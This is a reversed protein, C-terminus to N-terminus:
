TAWTNKNHLSGPSRDLYEELHICPETDDPGDSEVPALSRIRYQYENFLMGKPMTAQFGPTGTKFVLSAFDKSDQDSECHVGDREDILRERSVTWAMVLSEAGADLLYKGDRELAMYEICAAGKTKRSIFFLICAIPSLSPSLSAYFHIARWVTRLLRAGLGSAM